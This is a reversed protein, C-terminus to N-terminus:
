PESVILSDLKSDLKSINLNKGTIIGQGNILYTTPLSDVAYIEAQPASLWGPENVHIWPYLTDDAAKMWNELKNDVSLAFIKFGTDHYKSYLSKLRNFKKVSQEDTVSWFALLVPQGELDSLSIVNGDIDQASIEPAKSGTQLHTLRKQKARLEGVVRTVQDHFQVALPHDPYHTRVASDVNEYINPYEVPPLIRENGMYRNLILINGLYGPNKELLSIAKTRLTNLTAKQISDAETRVESYTGQQTSEHLAKMLSDIKKRSEVFSYEYDALQGTEASGEIEYGSLSVNNLTITITDAASVSVPIKYSDPKEIVLLKRQQAKVTKTITKGSDPTFSLLEKKGDTTIESLVLKKLFPVSTNIKFVARESTEKKDHSCSILIANLVLFLFVVVTKARM